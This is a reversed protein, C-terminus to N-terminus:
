SQIANWFVSLNATSAAGSNTFALVTVGTASAGTVAGIWSTSGGPTVTVAPTATFRGVPFTVATSGSAANSINVAVIGSALRPMRTEVAEALAKIALAGQSIPDASEPYPFGRSTTGM